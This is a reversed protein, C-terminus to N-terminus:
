TLSSDVGLNGATGATLAEVTVTGSGAISGGAIPAYQVGSASVLRSSTTYSGTGTIAVSLRARTASKRAMGIVAAHRELFSTTATDPFIEKSLQLARAELGEIQFAIADAWRWADSSDSVDLDWGRAQYKERWDALLAARIVSHTRVDFTL